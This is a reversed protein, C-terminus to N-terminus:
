STPTTTPTANKKIIGRVTAYVTTLAGLILNVDWPLATGKIALWASNLGFVVVMMWFETTKYGEKITPSAATIAAFDEQAEKFVEPALSVIATKDKAKIAAIVKKALVVDDAVEDVLNKVTDKTDPTTTDSM